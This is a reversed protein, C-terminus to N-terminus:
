WKARCEVTQHDATARLLELGYQLYVSFSLKSSHCEPFQPQDDKPIHGALNEGAMAGALFKDSGGPGPGLTKRVATRYLSYCYFNVAQM